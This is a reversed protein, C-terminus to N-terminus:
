SPKRRYLYKTFDPSFNTEARPFRGAMFAMREPPLSPRSPPAQGAPRDLKRMTRDKFFFVFEEGRNVAFRLGDNGSLYSFSRFPLGAATKGTLKNFGDVIAKEVATDFLRSKRRSVPDVRYFITGGTAKDDESELWGMGDPLWNVRTMGTTKALELKPWADYLKKGRLPSVEEAASSFIALLIMVLALFAIFRKM